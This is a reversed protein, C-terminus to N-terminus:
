NQVINKEPVNILTSVQSIPNEQPGFALALPAIFKKYQTKQPLYYNPHGIRFNPTVFTATHEKDRKNKRPLFNHIPNFVMSIKMYTPMEHQFFDKGTATNVGAGGSNRFEPESLQIEWPASGDGVLNTINMSTFVGPQQYIYDGITLYAYNGRMQNKENYDPAFSSMLYNLKTYIAPMEYKSHAMLIFSFNVTRAYNEYTYFPEGRGMYNFTKWNTKFDDTLSDLYARFALVDTNITNAFVPFDNNLLEIRFKIIDRGYNGGTKDQVEKKDYLGSYILNSDVGNTPNTAPNSNGYFVSRPTITLVNISDVPFSPGVTNKPDAPTTMGIRQHLNFRQYDEASPNEYQKRFDLPYRAQNKIGSTATGLNPSSVNFDAVPPTILPNKSEVSGYSTITQYNWPRFGLNQAQENPTNGFPSKNTVGTNLGFSDSYTENRTKGLGYFSDPGGNYQFLSISSYSNEGTLTGYYKDLRSLFNGGNSTNLSIYGTDNTPSLGHRTFHLGLASGGVSALTNTGIPNYIRPGNLQFRKPDYATDPNSLQLGSQKALWLPGNPTDTFFAGIRALDRTTALGANYVGSPDGERFKLDDPFGGEYGLRIYPSKSNLKKNTGPYVPISTQNFPSVNTGGGFYTYEVQGTQQAREFIEKLSAM